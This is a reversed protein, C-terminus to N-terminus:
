VDPIKLDGAVVADEISQRLMGCGLIQGGRAGASMQAGIEPCTAAANTSWQVSTHRPSNKKVLVATSCRSCSVPVLGDEVYRRKDATSQPDAGRAWWPTLGAPSRSVAAGEAM